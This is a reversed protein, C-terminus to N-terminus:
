SRITRLEHAAPHHESLSKRVLILDKLLEESSKYGIESKGVMRLREIIVAFKRRYVETTVPWKKDETLYKGEEAQLTGLLEASVSVRTTSHSYLKMLDVLVNKYKKLRTKATEGTNGM